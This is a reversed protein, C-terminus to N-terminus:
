VFGLSFQGVMALLVYRIVRGAACAIIYKWWPIRLGGAVIGAVDFLPNPIFAFVFIGLMDYRRVIEEIKKSEKINKNLLDRAGEGAVYGTLEGIASGIGAVVGLLVPNLFASMAIVTAWGPAPFFLTASSLLSILFVGIYGYEQFKQIDNSFYLVLAVIAIAFAIQLIGELKKDM